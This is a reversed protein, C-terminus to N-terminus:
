HEGGTGLAYLASSLDAHHMSGFDDTIFADRTGLASCSVITVGTTHVCEVTCPFTNLTM